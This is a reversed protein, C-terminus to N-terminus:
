ANPKEQAISKEREITEKQAEDWALLTVLGKPEAQRIRHVIDIGAARRGENLDTARAGNVHEVDHVFSQGMLQCVELLIWRLVRKGPEGKLVMRLAELDLAAERANIERLTQQGM